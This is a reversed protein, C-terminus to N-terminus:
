CGSSHPAHCVAVQLPGLVRRWRSFLIKKANELCLVRVSLVEAWFESGLSRAILTTKASLSRGQAGRVILSPSCVAV